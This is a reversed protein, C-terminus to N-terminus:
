KTKSERAKQLVIKIEPKAQIRLALVNKDGFEPKPENGRRVSYTNDIKVVTDGIYLVDGQRVDLNLM